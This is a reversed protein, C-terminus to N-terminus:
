GEMESVFYLYKPEKRRTFTHSNKNPYRLSNAYIERVQQHIEADCVRLEDEPDEKLGVGSDFVPDIKRMTTSIFSPNNKVDVGEVSDVDSDDDSDPGRQLTPQGQSENQLATSQDATEGGSRHLVRSYEGGQVLPLLIIQWPQLTAQRNAEDRYGIWYMPMGGKPVHYVETAAEESVSKTRKKIQIRDKMKKLGDSFGTGKSATSDKSLSSHSGEDAASDQLSPTSAAGGGSPTSSKFMSSFMVKPSQMVGRGKRSRQSKKTGATEHEGDVEIQLTSFPARQVVEFGSDDSDSDRTEDVSIGDVFLQEKEKIIDIVDVLSHRELADTAQVLDEDRGEEEEEQESTVLEGSATSFSGCSDGSDSSESNDTAEEELRMIAEKESTSKGFLSPRRMFLTKGLQRLAKSGKKSSTANSEAAGRSGGINSAVSSAISSTDSSKSTSRTAKTLKVKWTFEEQIIDYICHHGPLCWVCMPVNCRPCNAIVVRGTPPPAPASSTDTSVSEGTRVSAQVQMNPIHRGTLIRSHRRKAVSTLSTAELTNCLVCSKGKLITLAAPYSALSNGYTAQCLVTPTIMRGSKLAGSITSSSPAILLSKNLAGPISSDAGALLLVRVVDPRNHVAAFHLPTRLWRDQSNPDAGAVALFFSIVRIHANITIAYRLMHDAMNYQSLKNEMFELCDAWKQNLHVWQTIRDCSSVVEKLAYAKSMLEGDVLFEFYNNVTFGKKYDKNGETEGEVLDATDKSDHSESQKQQVPSTVSYSRRRELAEAIGDIEEESVSRKMEKQNSKSVVRDDEGGGERPPAEEEGEEEQKQQSSKLLEHGRELQEQAWRGTTVDREQM